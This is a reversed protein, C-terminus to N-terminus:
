IVVLGYDEMVIKIIIILLEKIQYIAMNLIGYIIILMKSMSFFLIMIVDLDKLQMVILHQEKGFLKM